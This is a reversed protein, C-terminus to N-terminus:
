CHHVLFTSRIPVSYSICETSTHSKWVAFKIKIELVRILWCLEFKRKVTKSQFWSKSYKNQLEIENKRHDKLTSSNISLLVKTIVCEVWQQSACKKYLLNENIENRLNHLSKVYIHLNFLFRQNCEELFRQGKMRKATKDNTFNISEVTYSNSHITISM